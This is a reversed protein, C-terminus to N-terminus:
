QDNNEQKDNLALRLNTLELKLSATMIEHAKNENKLRENLNKEKFLDIKLDVIKDILYEFKKM